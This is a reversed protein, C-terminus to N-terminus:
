LMIYDIGHYLRWASGARACAGRCRPGPGRILVSTVESNSNNNSSSIIISSIIMNNSHKCNVVTATFEKCRPGPRGPGSRSAPGHCAAAVRPGDACEIYIYIYIYIYSYM